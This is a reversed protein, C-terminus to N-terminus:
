DFSLSSFEDGFTTISHAYPFIVGGRRHGDPEHAVFVHADGVLASAPSFADLQPDPTHLNRIFALPLRGLTINLQGEEDDQDMANYLRVRDNDLGLYAFSSLTDEAELDNIFHWDLDTIIPEYHLDTDNLDDIESRDDDGATVIKVGAGQLTGTLTKLGTIFGAFEAFAATRELAGSPVAQGLALLADVLAEVSEPQQPRSPVVILVRGRFDDDEFMVLLEPVPLADLPLPLPPPNATVAVVSTGAAPVASTDAVLSVAPRAKAQVTPTDNLGVLPPVIGIQLTPQDLGGSLVAMDRDAQFIRGAGSVRWSVTVDLELTAETGDPLDVVIEPPAPLTEVSSAGAPDPAAGGPLNTLGLLVDTGVALNNSLFFDSGVDTGGVRMPIAQIEAALLCLSEHISEATETLGTGSKACPEPEACATLLSAACMVAVSGSLAARRRSTVM